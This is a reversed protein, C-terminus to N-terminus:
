LESTSITRVYQPLRVLLYVFCVISLGLFQAFFRLDAGLFFAVLGMIAISEAMAGVIVAGSMVGQPTGRGLLARETVLMVPIVALAAYLLIQPVQAPVNPIERHTNNLVVAVAGYIVTSLLLAGMVLYIRILYGTSAALAAGCHPCKGGQALTTFGQRCVPCNM